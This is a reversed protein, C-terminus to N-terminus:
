RGIYSRYTSLYMGRKLSRMILSWGEISGSADYEVM